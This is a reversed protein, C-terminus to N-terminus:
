SNATQAALAEVKRAIRALLDHMTAHAIRSGIVEDFAEGALGAPPTYTGDLRLVARVKETDTSWDAGITGQFEPVPVAGDAQWRIIAIENLSSEDRGRHLEFHVDQEIAATDRGSIDIPVRLRLTRGDAIAHIAGMIFPQASQPVCDVPEELSIKVM